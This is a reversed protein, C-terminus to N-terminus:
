IQEIVQTTVNVQKRRCTPAVGLGVVIVATGSPLCMFMDRTMGRHANEQGGIWQSVQFASKLEESIM